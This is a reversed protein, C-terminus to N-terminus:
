YKWKVCYEGLVETADQKVKLAHRMCRFCWISVWYHWALRALPLLQLWSMHLKEESTTCVVTWLIVSLAGLRSSDAVEVMATCAFECLSCM